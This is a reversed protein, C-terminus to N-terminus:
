WTCHEWLGDMYYWQKLIVQKKIRYKKQMKSFWTSRNWYTRIDNKTFKDLPLRYKQLYRSSDDFEGNSARQAPFGSTSERCLPGTICFMSGYRRSTHTRMGIHVIMIRPIYQIYICTYIYMNIYIYILSLVIYYFGMHTAEKVSSKVLDTPVKCGVLGNPRTPELNLQGLSSWQWLLWEFQTKLTKIGCRFLLYLWNIMEFSDRFAAIQGRRDGHRSM